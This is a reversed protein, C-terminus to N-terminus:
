GLGNSAAEALAAGGARAAGGSDTGGERGDPGAAKGDGEGRGRDNGVEEDAVEALREDAWRGGNTAPDSARALEALRRVRARTRRERELDLVRATM